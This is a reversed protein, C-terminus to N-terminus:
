AVRRAKAASNCKTEGCLHKGLLNIGNTVLTM